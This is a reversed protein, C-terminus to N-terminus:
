RVTIRYMRELESIAWRLAAATEAHSENRSAERQEKRLLRYLREVKKEEMTM